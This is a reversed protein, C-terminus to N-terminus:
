TADDQAPSLLYYAVGNISSTTDRSSQYYSTIINTVIFILYTYLYTHMQKSFWDSDAITVPSNVKVFVVHHWSHSVIAM